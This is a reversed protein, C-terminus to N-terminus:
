PISDLNSIQKEVMKVLPQLKYLLGVTRVESVFVSQQAMLFLARDEGLFSRSTAQLSIILYITQLISEEKVSSSLQNEEVKEGKM